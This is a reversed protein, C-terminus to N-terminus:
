SERLGIRADCMCNEFVRAGLAPETVAGFGCKLCAVNAGGAAFQGSVCPACPAAPDANNTADGHGLLPLGFLCAKSVGCTGRALLLRARMSPMNGAGGVGGRV